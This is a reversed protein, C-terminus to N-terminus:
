THTQAVSVAVAVAVDVDVDVAGAAHDSDTDASRTTRKAAISADALLSSSSDIERRRVPTKLYSSFWSPM